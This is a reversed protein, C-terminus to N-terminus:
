KKAGKKPRLAYFAKMDKSSVKGQYHDKIIQESNGAWEATFGFSECKRFYHSIATHRMVDEVWPKLKANAEPNGFGANLRITDFDTRWNAPYFPRKPYAELWARLTKDIAITRPRRTKSQHGELRIEGDALNVNEPLLRAAEFPRLGGFLCVAVYPVLRGKRHKEAARLLRGAEAVTLIKPSPGPVRRSKEEKRAPNIATWKRPEQKCWAFFRSLALRDNTRTRRSVARAELFRAVINPTIDSIDFNGISNAFLGVRLRLNNKTRRRLDKESQQELWQKFEKVAEDLKVTQTVSHERGHKIWYEVALPLEHDAGLRILAAEALSVQEQTMKTARISTEVEGKLWETQLENQRCQAKTEDAFNERVRSGDRKMGAVRWSQSGTRNEFPQIIFRQRISRPKEVRAKIGLPIINQVQPTETQQVNNM